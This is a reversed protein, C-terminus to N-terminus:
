RSPQSFHQASDLTDFVTGVAVRSELHSRNTFPGTAAPAFATVVPMMSLNVPYNWPSIIGVVGLPQYDIRKSGLRMDLAIHRRAPRM